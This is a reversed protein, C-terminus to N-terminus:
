FVEVTCETHDAGYKGAGDYFAEIRVTGLHASTMPTLKIRWASNADTIATHTTVTGDSRTVRLSVRAGSVKPTVTGSVQVNDEDPVNVDQPCTMTLNPVPASVPLQRSIFGDRELSVALSSSDTRRTPTILAVGGEITARGIVQGAQTLTALTGDTGPQTSNVAVQFSPDGVPYSGATRHRFRTRIQTLDFQAPEANRIEMSPDGLLHWMLHEIFVNNNTASSLSAMYSKGALLVEGVRELPTSQGFTPVTAPFMADAFGVTLHDNQVTPSINTDGFAAVAGGNAHHLLRENFSPSGTHQFSGSLCNVGFVVPLETGNTMSPVDSNFLDPHVWGGNFGHDRHLVLFRGANFEALFQTRSANWPFGPPKLEDPIATGDKFRQIDAGTDANYLRHVVHGRSRLGARFRESSLTYGRADQPGPGQFYSTVTAHNYFDDGAPAPPETQYRIIKGVTTEAQALTNASIRGLMVDAFM